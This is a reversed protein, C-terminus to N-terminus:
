SFREQTTSQEMVRQKLNETNEQSVSLVVWQGPAPVSPHLPYKNYGSVTKSFQFLGNLVETNDYSLLEICQPSTIVESFHGDCLPTEHSFDAKFLHENSAM